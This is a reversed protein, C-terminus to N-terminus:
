RLEEQFSPTASTPAAQKGAKEPWSLPVFTKTINLRAPRTATLSFCVFFFEM